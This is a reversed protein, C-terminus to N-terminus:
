KRDILFIFYRNQIISQTNYNIGPCYPQCSSTVALNSDPIERINVNSILNLLHNKSVDYSWKFHMEFLIVIMIRQSFQQQQQLQVNYQLVSIIDEAMLKQYYLQNVLRLFAQKKLKIQYPNHQLVQKQSQFQDKLKLLATLLITFEKPTMNQFDQNEAFNTILLKYFSKYLEIIQGLYTAEQELEIYFLGKFLFSIQSFMCGSIKHCTRVVKQHFSRKKYSQQIKFTSLWFYVAILSLNFLEMLQENIFELLCAQNIVSIIDENFSDFKSLITQTLCQKNTRSLYVNNQYIKELLILLQSIEIENANLYSALSTNFQLSNSYFIDDILYQFKNITIKPSEFESMEYHAFFHDLKGYTYRTQNKTTMRFMRFTMRTLSSAKNIM